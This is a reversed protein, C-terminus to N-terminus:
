QAGGIRHVATLAAATGFLILCVTPFTDDTLYSLVELASM